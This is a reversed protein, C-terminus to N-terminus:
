SASRRHRKGHHCPSARSMLVAAGPDHWRLISVTASVLLLASAGLELTMSLTLRRISTSAKERAGPISPCKQKPHVRVLCALLVSGGPSLNDESLPGLRLCETQINTISGVHVGLRCRRSRSVLNYRVVFRQPVDRHFFQPKTRQEVVRAPCDRDLRRGRLTSSAQLRHRLRPLM